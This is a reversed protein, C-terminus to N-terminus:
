GATSKPWRAQTLRTSVGRVRSASTAFGSERLVKLQQSVASQTIGFEHAIVDVVEGSAHEGTALLRPHAASGSRRSRRLRADSALTSRSPVNPRARAEDASEGAAIHAAGWAEGSGRMFAKGDSSMTWAEIAAPDLAAAPDAIHRELGYLGLDWGIGVAGPGYKALHEAGIGDTHAIHELTLSAAEGKPALRVTVWTYAGPIGM